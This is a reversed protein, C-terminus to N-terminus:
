MIRRTLKPVCRKTHKLPPRIPYKYRYGHGAFVPAAPRNFVALEEDAPLEEGRPAGRPAAGRRLSPQPNALEIDSSGHSSSKPPKAFGPAAAPAVRGARAREGRRETGEGRSARRKHGPAASSSSSKEDNPRGAPAGLASPADRGAVSAAVASSSSSSNLSNPTGAYGATAEMKGAMSSSSSSSNASTSSCWARACKTGRRPSRRGRGRGGRGRGRGGGRGGVGASRWVENHSAEATQRARQRAVM